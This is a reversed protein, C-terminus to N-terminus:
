VYEVGVDVLQSVRNILESPLRGPFQHAQFLRVIPTVGTQILRRAWEVNRPDGNDLMKLWKIGMASLEGVWFDLDDPASLVPAAHVGAVGVRAPRSPMLGLRERIRAYLDAKWRGTAEADWGPCETLVYDMHGKVDDIGNIGPLADSTIAWEAVKAAADLQADPPRLVHLSGALGVSLHRNHHGTHDHWCGETFALCHLIEGTQTIWISYPISPRGGTKTIYYAATDYPSHSLTHHFTLGTIQDPTRQWWGNRLLGPCADNRALEGSIDRDWPVEDSVPPAPPRANQRDKVALVHQVLSPYVREYDSGSWDDTPGLTFPCVGWLFYDKSAEDDYWALADVLTQASAAQEDGCYWESVVLPVVENRQELLHYLYRYRFNYPGAGEVQPAGPISDGWESQADHTDFTGEHLALIHGGEKARGFVGTAVMAEMESWEPTRANLSFLALRLGHMEALDITKIMYEALRRYGVPGPPDPEHYVEWYDVTDCLGPDGDIVDVIAGIGRTAHIDMLFEPKEVGICAEWNGSLRAITIAGPITQRVTTLWNLDDVAKVVPFRAGGDALNQAFDGVRNPQMAHVGIKSGKEVVPYPWKSNDSM